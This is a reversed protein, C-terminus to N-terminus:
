RNQSHDPRRAFSSGTIDDLRNQLSYRTVELAQRQSDSIRQLCSATRETLVRLANVQQDFDAQLQIAVEHEPKERNRDLGQQIAALLWDPLQKNSLFRPDIWTGSVAINIYASEDLGRPKDGGTSCIEVLWNEVQSSPRGDAVPFIQM